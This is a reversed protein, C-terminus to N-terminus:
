NQCTSNQLGKKKKSDLDISFESIDFQQPTEAEADGLREVEAGTRTLVPLRTPLLGFLELAFQCLNLGSRAQFHPQGPAPLDVGLFNIFKIVDM